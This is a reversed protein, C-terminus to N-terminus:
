LPDHGETTGHVATKISATIQNMTSENSPTENVTNTFHNVITKNHQIQYIYAQSPHYHSSTNYGWKYKNEDSSSAVNWPTNYSGGWTVLDDRSNDIVKGGYSFNSGVEVYNVALGQWQAIPTFPHDRWYRISNRLDVGPKSGSGAAIITISGSKPLNSM